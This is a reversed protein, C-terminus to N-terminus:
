RRREAWRRRAPPFSAAEEFRQGIGLGEAMAAAESSAMVTTGTMISANMRPLIGPLFGAVGQVPQGHAQIMREQFPHQPKGQDGDSQGDDQHDVM